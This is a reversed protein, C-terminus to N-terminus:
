NYAKNFSTNINSDQTHLTIQIWLYGPLVAYAVKMCQLLLTDKRYTVIKWISEHYLNEKVQLFSLFEVGTM